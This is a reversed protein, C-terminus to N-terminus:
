VPGCLVLSATNTTTVHSLKLGFASFHSLLHSRACFMHSSMLANCLQSFLSLFVFILFCTFRAAHIEKQKMMKKRRARVVTQMVIAIQNPVKKKRKDAKSHFQRRTTSGAKNDRPQIGEALPNDSDDEHLDIMIVDPDEDDSMVFKRKKGKLLPQYSAYSLASDVSTERRSNGDLNTDDRFDTESPSNPWEMESADKLTGDERCADGDPKSPDKFYSHGAGELGSSSESTNRNGVENLTTPNQFDTFFDQFLTLPQM